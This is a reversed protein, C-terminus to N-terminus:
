RDRAEVPAYERQDADSHEEVAEVNIEGAGDKAVNNTGSTYFELEANGWGSGGTDFGWKSTDVGTGAGHVYNDNGTGGYMVDNGADGWLTDNGAGGTLNDNGDGGLLQDAGSGGILIDGGGFGYIVDDGDGGTVIDTFASGYFTDNGGNLAVSNSTEGPGLGTGRFDVTNATNDYSFVGM